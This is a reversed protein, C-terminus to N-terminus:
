RLLTIESLLQSVPVYHLVVRPIVYDNGIVSPSHNTNAAPGGTAQRSECCWASAVNYYPKTPQMRAVVVSGIVNTLVPISRASIKAPTTSMPLNSYWGLIVVITIGLASMRLGLVVISFTHVAIIANRIIGDTLHLM